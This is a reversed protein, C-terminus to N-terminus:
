LTLVIYKTFFINMIDIRKVRNRKRTILCHTFMGFHGVSMLKTSRVQQHRFLRHPVLRRPILKHNKMKIKKSKQMMKLKLKRRKRITTKIKLRKILQKLNNHQNTITLIM